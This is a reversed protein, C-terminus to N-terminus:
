SGPSQFSKQYASLLLGGRLLIKWYGSVGLLLNWPLTLLTTYETRTPHHLESTLALGIRNYSFSRLGIKWPFVVILLNEKVKMWCHRYLDLWYGCSERINDSSPSTSSHFYGGAPYIQVASFVPDSVFFCDFSCTTRDWEFAKSM